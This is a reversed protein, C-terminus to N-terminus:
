AATRSTTVEPPPKELISLVHKEIAADFRKSTIKDTDLPAFCNFIYDVYAAHVKVFFDRLQADQLRHRDSVVAVFKIHTNTMYGYMQWEDIPCLFGLYMDQQQTKREVCEDLVDLSCYVLSQFYTEKEEEFMRMYLPENKKGIVSVTATLM